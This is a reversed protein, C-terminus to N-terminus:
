RRRPPSPPPGADGYKRKYEEYPLFRSNRRLDPTTGTLRGDLTVLEDDDDYTYV